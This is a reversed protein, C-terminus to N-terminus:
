QPVPTMENSLERIAQDWDRDATGTPRGNRIWIEFAREAIRDRPLTETISAQTGEETIVAGFFRSEANRDTKQTTEAAATVIRRIVANRESRDPQQLQERKSRQGFLWNFMTGIRATM